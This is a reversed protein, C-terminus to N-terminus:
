ASAVGDPAIAARLRWAVILRNGRTQTACSASQRALVAHLTTVHASMSRGRPPLGRPRVLPAADPSLRHLQLVEDALHRAAALRVRRQPGPLAPLAQASPPLECCWAPGHISGIRPGADRDQLGAECSRVARGLCDGGKGGPSANRECARGLRRWLRSPGLITPVRSLVPSIRKRFQRAPSRRPIEGDGHRRQCSDPPGM